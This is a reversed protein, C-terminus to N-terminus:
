PLSPHPAYLGPSLARAWRHLEGRACGDLQRAPRSSPRVQPRSEGEEEEEDDEMEFSLVDTPGDVGRWEANLAAIHADDCLVLSLEMPAAGPPPPRALVCHIALVRCPTLHTSALLSAPPHGAHASRLHLMCGAARGGSAPLCGSAGM